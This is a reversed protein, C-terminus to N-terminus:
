LLAKQPGKTIRVSRDTDCYVLTKRWSLGLVRLGLDRFGLRVLGWCVAYHLEFGFQSWGLSSLRVMHDMFEHAKLKQLRLFPSM